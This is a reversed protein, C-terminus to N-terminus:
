HGAVSKTAQYCLTVFFKCLQLVRQLLRVCGSLCLCRLVRLCLLSQLCVCQLAHVVVASAHGALRVAYGYLVRVACVCLSVCLM